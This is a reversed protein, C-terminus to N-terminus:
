SVKAGLIEQTQLKLNLATLYEIVKPMTWAHVSTENKTVEDETISGKFMSAQWSIQMVRKRSGITIVGYSTEVEFWPNYKILDEYQPARPWYQNPIKTIRLIDFGSIEFVTCASQFTFLM